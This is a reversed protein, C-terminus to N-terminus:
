NKSKVGLVVLYKHLCDTDSTKSSCFLCSMNFMQFVLVPFCNLMKSKTSSLLQRGTQNATCHQTVGQVPSGPKEQPSPRHRCLGCYVNSTYSTHTPQPEQISDLECNLMIPPSRTPSEPVRSNVPQAAADEAVPLLSLLYFQLRTPHGHRGVYERVVGM